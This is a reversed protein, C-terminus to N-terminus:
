KLQEEIKWGCKIMHTVNQYVDIEGSKFISRLNELKITIGGIDNISFYFKM